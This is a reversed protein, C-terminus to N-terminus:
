GRGAGTEGDVGDVADVADLTDQTDLARHSRADRDLLGLRGSALLLRDNAYMLSASRLDRFIREMPSGPTRCYGTSMGAVEMLGDVMRWTQESVVVKVNNIAIQFAPTDLEREGARRRQEYEHLGALLVAEATDLRCRARALRILTPESRTSSRRVGAVVFRLAERAAGVWAAAWGLHGLPAMSRAVVRAFGGPPDILHDAPVHADLTLSVNGTARMGLMDLRGTIRVDSRERECFVGVVDDVVADPHRRMSVVFGDAHAGGTVVPATRRVHLLGHGGEGSGAVGAAGTTDAAGTTEVAALATLLHGGKAPETTISGIFEEGTAIRSLAQERLAPAAYRALVDVQQSHMVWLVAAAVSAAGLDRAVRVVDATSGAGGGFERPVLFSLLRHERLVAITRGEPDGSADLDAALAALEGRAADIRARLHGAPPHEPPHELAVTAGGYSSTTV